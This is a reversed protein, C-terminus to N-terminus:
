YAIVLDYHRRSMLIQRAIDGLTKPLISDNVTPGRTRSMELHEGYMSLLRAEQPSNKKLLTFLSHYEETMTIAQRELPLHWKTALIEECKKYSAEWEKKLQELPTDIAPFAVTVDGQYKEVVSIWRGWVEDDISQDPKYHLISGIIRVGEELPHLVGDYYIGTILQRRPDYRHQCEFIYIATLLLATEKPTMENIRNICDDIDSVSAKYVSETFEFIPVYRDFTFEHGLYPLRAPVASIVRSALYAQYAEEGMHKKLITLHGLPGSPNTAYINVPFVEMKKALVRIQQFFTSKEM